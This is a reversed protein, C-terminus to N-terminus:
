GAVRPRAKPLPPLADPVAGAAALPVGGAPALMAIPVPDMVKFRPVLYSRAPLEAAATPGAGDATEGVDRRGCVQPKLDAPLVPPTVTPRLRDLTAGGFLGSGASFATELLEATHEEREKATREGLVVAVLRRGGRSASAVVNFGSSCIFGTKMGDAGPYRELLNNHTKIVKGGLSLGTIRFLDYTGPYDRILARALLAYDRATTFQAPDPLGNPNAFRTGVMGLRAAEANMRAVFGAEGGGVTEGLAMAVDNASKVVLIKLATDVSVAAGPKFGMKSPPEKAAHATMVVPTELTVEGASLARLTVYITMLKTLSAPYWPDFSRNEALVEGTRADFVLYPGASAAVPAILAAALTAVLALRRGTPLFRILPM